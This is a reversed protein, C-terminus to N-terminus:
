CVLQDNLFSLTRKLGYHYDNDNRREITISLSDTLASQLFVDRKGWYKIFRHERRM